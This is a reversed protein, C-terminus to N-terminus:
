TIATQSCTCTRSKPRVIAAPAGASTWRCGATISAYRPPSSAAHGSEELELVDLRAVARNMREMSDRECDLLTRDDRHEARVAGALRRRQARDGAGDTARSADGEGPSREVAEPWVADGAEPNRM